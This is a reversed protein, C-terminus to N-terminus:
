PELDRQEEGELVRRRIENAVEPFDAFERLAALPANPDSLVSTAQRQRQVREREEETTRKTEARDERVQVDAELTRRRQFAREGTEQALREELRQEARKNAKISDVFSYGTILNDVFASAAHTRHGM